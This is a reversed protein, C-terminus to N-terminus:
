EIEKRVITMGLHGIDINKTKNDVSKKWKENRKVILKIVLLM